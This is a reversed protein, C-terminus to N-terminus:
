ADDRGQRFIRWYRVGDNVCFHDVDARVPEPVQPGVAVLLLVILADRLETRQDAREREEAPEGV